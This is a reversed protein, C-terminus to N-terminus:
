SFWGGIMKIIEAPEPLVWAAVAIFMSVVSIILMVTNYSKAKKADQKAEQLEQEKMSCLQELKEYNKKLQENQEVTLEFEENRREEEAMMREVSHPIVRGAAIDPIKFDINPFETSM